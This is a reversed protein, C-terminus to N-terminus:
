PASKGGIPEECLSEEAGESMVADASGSAVLCLYTAICGIHPRSAGRGGQLLVGLTRRILLQRFGLTIASRIYPEVGVACQM